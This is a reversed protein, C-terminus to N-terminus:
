CLTMLAETIGQRSAEGLDAVVQPLRLRNVERCISSFLSGALKIVFTM